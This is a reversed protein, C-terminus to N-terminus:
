RKVEQNPLVQGVNERLLRVAEVGSPTLAASHDELSILELDRLIRADLKLTSM